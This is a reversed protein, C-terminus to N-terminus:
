WEEDDFLLHNSPVLAALQRMQSVAGLGAKKSKRESQVFGPDFKLRWTWTRFFQVLSTRATKSKKTLADSLNWDGAIWILAAKSQELSERLQYAQLASRINSLGLLPGEHKNVADFGGRSDTGVVGKVHAVMRNADALLNDQCLCGNLQAWLFRTRFNADEGEVMSQIEGDNTSIARRRLKWTKWSVISLKGAEGYAHQPGGIFTLLGGTSGGQPRNAHAQDALTIITVDQWHSVEPLQWLKLTIPNQRTEKVLDNIEKAVQINKEVTLETLLLNVRSCILVQTQTALWQLAGLSARCAATESASLPTKPDMRLREPSVALDPLTEAYFDQSLQIWRDEGRQCVELDIGTHRFSQTKRTGWKYADDVQKCIKKWAENELDGARNFDDVHGGIFGLIRFQDAENRPSENPEVWVWFSSDGVIRHGGLRTFTKDVDKWLGRPATTNGYVNKLLRLVEQDSAGLAAKLEPVGSTWLEEKEMSDGGTQLFATTMDLGELMWGKQATLLLSLNRMLQSQVPASSRFTSQLLDPHEFGLVVIRAKAKKTLSPHISSSPKAELDQQAEERSETPIDKWVLVWRARLVRGSNQARQQEEYTLCRRVAETRIFSSVESAKANEFLQRDAPSLKRFNVEANSLKKVMYAQPNRLFMKKQRQSSFDLEIEMLYGEDSELAALNFDIYDVDGPEELRSRKLDPEPVADDDPLESRVPLESHAPLGAPLAAEDMGDLLPTKSTTSSRRSRRHGELADAGDARLDTGIEEDLVNPSEPDGYNNVDEAFDEDVMSPQAPVVPFGTDDIPYKSHFRIKPPIVTSGNPQQPLHPEEIETPDPEEGVVDVYNRNPIMDKLEKWRSSGDDSAEFLAQERQSLPRVSHVSARYMINGLIVWLIQKRDSEDQGPVLEHFVVRGPGVWRPRQTHRHGGKRGKYITHPLFKRWLMVPQAMSYQRLPQRISTNKLKSMTLRAKAARACNEAIGRANLLRLFEDQQRERPLSLQQRLQDDDLETQKGYAWQLSTYGKNFETSNIAACAMALSYIPEQDPQAVQILSATEKIHGINREVIGHSWSENDLPPIVAISLDSLFEMVKKSTLSKANDPIFVRPRPKDMLWRTTLVRIVDEGTEVFCSGHQYTSLVEVVRYKTALDIFLMFKIKLDVGPVTWEGVDAGLHEWALPLPRLSSPPIQKSSSGGPKQEECVSCKFRLAQKVKWNEVKADSLMRALNRSTPHGAARHFRSLRAEWAVLDQSSVGEYDPDQSLDPEPPLDQDASPRQSLDPDDPQDEPQEDPPPAISPTYIEDEFADDEGGHFLEVFPDVGKVPATWLMKIWRDPLLQSKWCRAISRCLAVPYYASRNTEKGHIWEHDHNKLCCKLRFQNYFLQDTTVVKWSKKLFNGTESKLGYRCGDIRCEWIEKDMAKLEEFLNDVLPEKWGRCRWPWEWYIDVGRLALFVIFAVMNRLMKRERRRHKALVEPRHNYNLDVWDCFYTCKPAFWAKKPKQVEYLKYLGNWTEDKYLDFGNALNIRVGKMGHQLCAETLTSHPSCFVEWIVPEKEYVVNALHNNLNEQLYHVVNLMAKGIRLPLSLAGRQDVEQPLDPHLEVNPMMPCCLGTGVGRRKSSGDASPKAGKPLDTSTRGGDTAGVHGHEQVKRSISSTGLQYNFSKPVSSSDKSIRRSRFQKFWSGTTECGTESELDEGSGGVMAEPVGSAADEDQDRCHGQGDNDEGPERGSVHRRTARLSTGGSGTADDSRQSAQDGFSPSGGQSCLDSSSRLVSLDELSGVQQEHFKVRQTGRLMAMSRGKLSSRQPGDGDFTSQGSQRFGQGESGHDCRSSSTSSLPNLIPLNGMLGSQSEISLRRKWLQLFSSSLHTETPSTERSQRLSSFSSDIVFLDDFTLTHLDVSNVDNGDDTLVHVQAAGQLNKKGCTLFHVVDILYHSKSNSDLFFPKAERQKSYVALGDNFDIVLGNGKIFDMGLLVPVLMSPVFWPERSEEPDPLAFAHFANNTLNSSISVRYLAKGWKGSGYRFRPRRKGDITIHAARDQQLVASILNKISTEPGASCTAGTDLMGHSTSSSDKPVAASLVDGPPVGRTNSQLDLADEDKFDLVYHWQDDLGEQYYANVNGKNKGKYKGKGKSGGYGKGKLAFLDEVYSMNKGYGKNRNKGKGKVFAFNYDDEPYGVYYLKGKGKPGNRDPCDRAYHSPHGCIHCGESGKSGVKGFGRDKRALQTSRHAQSWTQQVLAESEKPNEEKKDDAEPSTEEFWESEDDWWGTHAVWPDEEWWYQDDWSWDEEDLAFLQPGGHHAHSPGGRTSQIQEDYLITLAMSVNQYDLKNNTSALISRWEEASLCAGSLLRWGRLQKLIFSDFNNLGRGGGSSRATPRRPSTTPRRGSLGYPSGEEEPDEAPVRTYGEKKKSSKSDDEEGEDEESASEDSFDPFVQAPVGDQEDKLAMLSESFEEFYLSERVLYNAISEQPYRRYNFYQNLVASTNPLNRRVLPSEALRQLLLRVGQTGKFDQQSWSMALLRAPGTLKSILRPALFPRSAKKTGLVFWTVERSYRRWGRPNGDWGPVAEAM